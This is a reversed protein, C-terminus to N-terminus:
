TAAQDHGQQLADPSGRRPWRAGGHGTAPGQGTVTVGAGRREPAAAGGGDLRTCAERAAATAGEIVASPWAPAGDDAPGGGTDGGVLDHPDDHVIRGLVVSAALAGAAVPVAMAGAGGAVLGPRTPAQGADAAEQRAGARPPGAMAQADRHAKCASAVGLGGVLAVDRRPGAPLAGAGAAITSGLRPGPAVAPGHGVAALGGRGIAPVPGLRALRHAAQRGAGLARLPGWLRGVLAAAGRAVCAVPEARGLRQGLGLRAPGRV